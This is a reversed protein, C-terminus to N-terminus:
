NEKKVIKLEYGLSDLIDELTNLNCNRRQLIYYVTTNAYGADLGIEKRNKGSKLCIQEFDDLIM